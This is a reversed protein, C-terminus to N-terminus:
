WAKEAIQPRWFAILKMFNISFVIYILVHTGILEFKDDPNLQEWANKEYNQPYCTLWVISKLLNETQILLM